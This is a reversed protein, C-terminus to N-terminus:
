IMGCSILNEIARVALVSADHCTGKLVNLLSSLTRKWYVVIVKLQSAGWDVLDHLWKFDLVDEVMTKSTGSKGYSNYLREFLIPFIELLRVCTMQFLISALDVIGALLPPLFGHHM